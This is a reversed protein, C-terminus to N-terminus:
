VTRRDTIQNSGTIIEYKKDNKEIVEIKCKPYSPNDRAGKLFCAEFNGGEIVLPKEEKLCDSSDECIKIILKGTSLSDKNINCASYFNNKFSEANLTLSDNNMICERIRFNLIAADINKYDYPTGFYAYIGLSIGGVILVLFFVFAIGMVQNGVTQAKKDMREEAESHKLLRLTLSM